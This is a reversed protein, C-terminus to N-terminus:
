PEVWVQEAEWDGFERRKVPKRKYGERHKRELENMQIERLATKLARRTFGSRTTGLRKAMKDVSSILNEDLTMQVTKM